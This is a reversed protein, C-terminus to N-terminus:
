GIFVQSGLTRTKVKEAPALILPFWLDNWIPGMIVSRGVGHRPAGAAAGTSFIRYESQGDIRGANKLDDSVQRM